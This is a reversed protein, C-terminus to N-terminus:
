SYSLPLPQKLNKQALTKKYVVCYVVCYKSQVSLLQGKPGRNVSLPCLQVDVLWRVLDLSGGMVACHVPFRFDFVMPLISHVYRLLGCTNKHQVKGNM